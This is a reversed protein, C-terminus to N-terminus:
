RLDAETPLRTWIQDWLIVKEILSHWYNEWKAWRLLKSHKWILFLDHINPCWIKKVRFFNCFTVFLWLFYVFFECFTSASYARQPKMWWWIVGLLKDRQSLYGLATINFIYLIFFNSFLIIILRKPCSLMSPVITLLLNFFNFKHSRFAFLIQKAIKNRCGLLTLIRGGSLYRCKNQNLNKISELLASPNPWPNNSTHDNHHPTHQARYAGVLLNWGGESWILTLCDPRWCTLLQPNRKQLTCVPYPMRKQSIQPPVNESWIM